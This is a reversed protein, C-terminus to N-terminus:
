RGNMHRRAHDESFKDAKRATYDGDSKRTAFGHERGLAALGAIFDIHQQNM